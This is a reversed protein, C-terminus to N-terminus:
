VNRYGSLEGPPCNGVACTKTRILPKIGHYYDWHPTTRTPFLGLSQPGPPCHNPKIKIQHPITKMPPQGLVMFKLELSELRPFQNSIHERKKDWCPAHEKWRGRRQSRSEVGDTEITAQDQESPEKEVVCLHDDLSGFKMRDVSLPGKIGNVLSYPFLAAWIGAGSVNFQLYYYPTSAAHSWTSM